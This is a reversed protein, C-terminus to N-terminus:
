SKLKWEGGVKEWLHPRRFSDIVEWFHEETIDVYELFEKAFESVIARTIEKEGVPSFKEM